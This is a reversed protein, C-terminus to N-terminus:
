RSRFRLSKANDKSDDVDLVEKKIGSSKLDVLDEIINKNAIMQPKNKEPVNITITKMQELLTNLERRSRSFEIAPSRSALVSTSLFSLILAIKLTM